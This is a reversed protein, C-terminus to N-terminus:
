SGCIFLLNSYSGLTCVHSVYLLVSETLTDSGLVHRSVADGAIFLDDSDSM